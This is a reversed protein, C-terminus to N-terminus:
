LVVADEHASRMLPDDSQTAVLLDVECGLLETLEQWLGVLDFVSQNRPFDVLFDVDSRPQADGRAVSGFVRVHTAGYKAALALIKKRMARLEKLTRPRNSM